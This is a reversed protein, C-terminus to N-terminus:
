PALSDLSHVIPICGHMSAATCNLPLTRQSHSCMSALLCASSCTGCPLSAGLMHRTAMRSRPCQLRYGAFPCMAPALAAALLNSPLNSCIACRGCLPLRLPACSPCPLGAHGDPSMVAGAGSLRAHLSAKYPSHPRCRRRAWSLAHMSGAAGDPASSLTRKALRTCYRAGRPVRAAVLWRGLGLRGERRVAGGLGCKLAPKLLTLRHRGSGLVSPCAAIGSVTLLSRISACSESVAPNISTPPHFLALLRFCWTRAPSGRPPGHAMDRQWHM